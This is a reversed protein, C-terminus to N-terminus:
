GKDNGERSRFTSEIVVIVFSLFFDMSADITVNQETSPKVALFFQKDLADADSSNCHHIRAIALLDHGIDTESRFVTLRKREQSDHRSLM